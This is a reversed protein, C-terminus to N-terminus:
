YLLLFLGLIFVMKFKKLFSTLEALFSVTGLAASTM